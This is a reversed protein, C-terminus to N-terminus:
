ESENKLLELNIETALKKLKDIESQIKNNSIISQHIADPSFGLAQFYEFSSSLSPLFKEKIKIPMNEILKLWEQSATKQGSLYAALAYVLNVGETGVLRFNRLSMNHQILQLKKDVILSLVPEQKLNKIKRFFSISMGCISFLFIALYMGYRMNSNISSAEPFEMIPQASYVVAKSVEANTKGNLAPTTAGPSGPTITLAVSESTTTIYKKLEPNFHSFEFAPIILEGENRPILLIEFEKYSQGNKFFKSESKTDFVELNQPWAINPLDILKANGSGEFRVKVSFPQHAPFQKGDARVSVQFSGVAGSFNLPRDQLPLPLVKIPLRKSFKTSDHSKGMGFPTPM